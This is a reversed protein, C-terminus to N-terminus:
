VQRSLWVHRAFKPLWSLPLCVAGNHQTGSAVRTQFDAFKFRVFQLIREVAGREANVVADIDEKEIVFGMKKFVKETRSSCTAILSIFLLSPSCDYAQM